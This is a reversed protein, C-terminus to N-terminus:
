SSQDPAREGDWYDLSDSRRFSARLGGGRPLREGVGLKDSDPYVVIDPRGHSSIALFSVTESTRNLIQHAGEEGLPFRLVEGEDLERIGTPTRLTPSGSLVILLEEDSYHYHYPYAAEGPPVEWLSCGILETALEYGIRARRSGFGDPRDDEEFAPDYVNAM